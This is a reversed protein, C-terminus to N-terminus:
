EGHKANILTRKKQQHVLILSGVCGISKQRSVLTAECRYLMFVDEKLPWLSGDTLWLVDFCALDLRVVTDRLGSINLPRLALPPLCGM